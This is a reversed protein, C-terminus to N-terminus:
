LSQVHHTQFSTATCTLCNVLLVNKRCKWNGQSDHSLFALPLSAGWIQDTNSVLARFQVFHILMYSCSLWSAVIGKDLTTDGQLNYVHSLTFPPRESIRSINKWRALFEVGSLCTIQEMLELHASMKNNKPLQCNKSWRESVTSLIQVVNGLTRVQCHQAPNALHWPDM